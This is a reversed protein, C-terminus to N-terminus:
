IFPNFNKEYSIQTTGEHGTYVATDDPLRELLARVSRVLESTSGTPFDSRGISTKFLTDGSFVAHEQPLYYCVGGKTHGPTHIVQIEFGALKLVQGDALFRDARLTFGGGCFSVSLNWATNELVEQEKEGAYCAIGYTRRLEEVAGIHDFHGHTLLIARPKWGAQQIKNELRGACDAPDIMILEKTEDNVAFWTNTRVAGLVMKEVKLKGM